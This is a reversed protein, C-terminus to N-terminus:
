GEIDEVDMRGSKWECRLKMVGISL